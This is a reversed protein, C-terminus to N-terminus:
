GARRIWGRREYVWFGLLERLVFHNIMLAETDPVLTNGRSDGPAAWFDTPAPRVVLGATRCTAIARRMHIASTVLLAERAGRADLLRKAEVCNEYTNRSVEERVIASEPVGLARLVFALSGAETRQPTGGGSVLIFPAKGAHYLRAAHFPRDSAENLEPFERPPLPPRTAGGLLVIADAPALEALPSAPHVAELAAVLREALPPLSALWLGAFAAFLVAAAARRRGFALLLLGLAMLALVASVPMVLKTLLKTLAFSM